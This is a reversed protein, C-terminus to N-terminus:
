LEGDLKEALSQLARFRHSVANKEEASAIGFSKGLHRIELINESM